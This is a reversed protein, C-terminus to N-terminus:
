KKDNIEFLAVEKSYLGQYEYHKVFNLLKIFCGVFILLKIGPDNM